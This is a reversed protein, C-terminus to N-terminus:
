GQQKEIAKVIDGLTQLNGFEAASIIVEYEDDIMAITSLYALSTWEPMERFRTDLTLEQDEVEMVEQMLELFQTTDIM